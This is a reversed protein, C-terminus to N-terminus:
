KVGNASSIHASHGRDGLVGPMVVARALHELHERTM